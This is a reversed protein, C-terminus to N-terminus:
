VIYTNTGAGGGLLAFCVASMVFTAQFVWTTWMNADAAWFPDVITHSRLCFFAHYQVTSNDTYSTKHQTQTHSTHTHTRHTHQPVTICRVMKDEEIMRGIKVEGDWKELEMARKKGHTCQLAPTSCFILYENTCHKQQIFSQSWIKQNKTM